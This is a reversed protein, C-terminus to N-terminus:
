RSSLVYTGIHNQFREDPVRCSATEKSHCLADGTYAFQTNISPFSEDLPWSAKAPAVLAQACKELEM